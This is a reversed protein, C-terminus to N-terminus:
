MGEANGVITNVISEQLTPDARVHRALRHERQIRVEIYRRIDDDNARIDLRKTGQFDREISTLYRSTFLLNVAAVLSRLETLLDGRTGNDEPCEDLADAVIFVKSYRRIEAQLAKVSEGLTPRTGTNIHNSYLAKVSASIDSTVSQEQILQKLLSAVLNSATQETREKYNCYICVVAVKEDKFAAQLHDVV